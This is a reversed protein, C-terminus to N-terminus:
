SRRRFSMAEVVRERAMAVAAERLPLGEVAGRELVEATNRKIREAIADFAGAQSGGHYEVAACIVGGANAIFDPVNVVGREHLVAEAEPTAPINAGQLILRTQIRPANDAHLCDPRAAPVLVDCPVELLEAQSIKTGRSWAGVTRSACKVSALEAAPIGEPDHVAGRSDSAAILRAGM